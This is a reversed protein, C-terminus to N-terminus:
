GEGAGAHPGEWVLLGGWVAGVHTGCIRVEKEPQLPEPATIKGMRLYAIGSARGSDSMPEAKATKSSVPMPATLCPPLKQYSRVFAAGVAGVKWWSKAM